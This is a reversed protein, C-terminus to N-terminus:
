WAAGITALMIKCEPAVTLLFVHASTHRFWARHPLQTLAHDQASDTRHIGPRAPNAANWWTLMASPEGFSAVARTGCEPPPDPADQRHPHLQGAPRLAPRALNGDGMRSSSRRRRGVARRSSARLAVVPLCGAGRVLCEKQRALGHPRPAVGGGSGVGV